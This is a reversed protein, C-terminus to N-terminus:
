FPVDDDAAPEFDSVDPERRRQAARRPVRRPQRRHSAQRAQRRARGPRTSSGDPSPSWGAPTSRRPPAKETMTYSVVDIYGVRRRSRRLGYGERGPPARHRAQRRHGPARPYVPHQALRATLQISNVIKDELPPQPTPSSRLGTRAAIGPPPSRFRARPRPFPAARGQLSLGPAACSGPRPLLLARRLCPVRHVAPWTGRSPRHVTTALPAPRTAPM